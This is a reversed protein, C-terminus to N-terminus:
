AETNVEALVTALSWLVFVDLAIIVIAWWPYFPLFFFQSVASLVALGIGIGYAWGRGSLVGVGALAVLAGLALHAWGWVTVDIAYVYGPATTFIEDEVIAAVGQFAQFLGTMLMVCGAFVAGATAWALRGEDTKM